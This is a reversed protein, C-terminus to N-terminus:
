TKLGAIQLVNNLFTFINQSRDFRLYDFTSHFGSVFCIDGIPLGVTTTLGAAPRRILGEWHIWQATGSELGHPISGVVWRVLLLSRVM